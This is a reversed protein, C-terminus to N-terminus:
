RLDEKSSDHNKTLRGAIVEGSKGMVYGGIMIKLLQWMQPPVDLVVQTGIFAEMYPAIIYNNAIIAVFVLATIPRWNSTIFHDSKAEAEIISAKEELEKRYTKNIEKTMENEIKTMEQELKEKEEESTHMDDVTDRVADIGKSIIEGPMKLNSLFGM